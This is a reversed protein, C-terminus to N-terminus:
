RDPAALLSEVEAVQENAGSVLITDKEQLIFWAEPSPIVRGDRVVALILAGTAERVGADRLTRGALSSRALIEIGVEFAEHVVEDAGDRYLDDDEVGRRGRALIHIEPNLRRAARIVARELVHDPLTVVLTRAGPVGARKLMEESGCDGYRVPHGARRAQRVLVPDIELAVFPVKNSM